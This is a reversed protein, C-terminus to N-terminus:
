KFHFNIDAILNLKCIDNGKRMTIKQRHNSLEHDIEDLLEDNEEEQEM